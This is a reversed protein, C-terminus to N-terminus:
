RALHAMPLWPAFVQLDQGRLVSRSRQAADRGAKGIEDAHEKDSKAHTSKYTGLDVKARLLQYLLVGIVVAAIATIILVGTM